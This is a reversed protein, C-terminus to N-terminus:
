WGCRMYLEGICKGSVRGTDVIYKAIQLQGYDFAVRLEEDLCHTTQNLLHIVSQIRGKIIMGRCVKTIDKDSLQNNNLLVEMCQKSISTSSIANMNDFIFGGKILIDAVEHNNYLIHHQLMERGTRRKDQINFSVLCKHYEVDTSLVFGNLPCGYTGYDNNRYSKRLFKYMCKYFDNTPPTFEDLEQGAHLFILLKIWYYNEDRVHKELIYTSKSCRLFRSLDRETLHEGIKSVTDAIM